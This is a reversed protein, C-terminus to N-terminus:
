HTKIVLILEDLLKVKVIHHLFGISQTAYKEGCNQPGTGCKHKNIYMELSMNIHRTFIIISCKLYTTTLVKEKHPNPQPWSLRNVTRDSYNRFMAAQRLAAEWAPPRKEWYLILDWTSMVRSFGWGCDTIHHRLNKSISSPPLSWSSLTLNDQM